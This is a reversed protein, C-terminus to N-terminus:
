LNTLLSFFSDIVHIRFLVDVRNGYLDSQNIFLNLLKKLWRYMSLNDVDIKKLQELDINDMQSHNNEVSTKIQKEINVFDMFDKIVISDQQWVTSFKALFYYLISVLHSNSELVIRKTLESLIDDIRNWEGANRKSNNDM